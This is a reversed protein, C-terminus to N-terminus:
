DKEPGKPEMWCWNGGKTKVISGKKLQRGLREQVIKKATDGGYVFFGSVNGGGFARSPADGKSVYHKKWKRSKNM